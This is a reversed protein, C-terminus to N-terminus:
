QPLKIPDVYLCKMQKLNGGDAMLPLGQESAMFSAAAM